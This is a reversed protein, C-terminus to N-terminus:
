SQQPFNICPCRWNGGPLPQSCRGPSSPIEGGCASCDLSQVDFFDPCGSLVKQAPQGYRNYRRQIAVSRAHSFNNVVPGLTAVPLEVARIIAGPAHLYEPASALAVAIGATLPFLTRLIRQM